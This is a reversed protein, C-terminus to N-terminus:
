GSCRTDRIDGLIRRVTGEINESTVVASVMAVCDAGAALVQKMNTENIGGIAVKPIRVCRAAEEVFALGTAPGADAKTSTAFIPSLGVYDAGMQEAELAEEMTHATIGIIATQGLIGRAAEYPMDDQGLHVGDAGAALAVDIRDNVILIAGHATTLTRLRRATAVMALTSAEKERYQVVEAGGKLAAEVVAEEPLRSLPSDTVVYLGCRRIAGGDCDM